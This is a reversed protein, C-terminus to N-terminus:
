LPRLIREEDRQKIMEERYGDGLSNFDFLPIM